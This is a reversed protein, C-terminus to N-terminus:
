INYALAIIKRGSFITSSTSGKCSIGKYRGIISAGRGLMELDARERHNIGDEKNENYSVIM